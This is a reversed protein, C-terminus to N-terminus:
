NIKKYKSYFIGWSSIILTDNKISFEQSRDDYTLVNLTEKTEASVIRNVHFRTSLILSDNRYVNCISDAIFVLKSTSHASEPTSCGAFGGCSIIWSWNGVLSSSPNTSKKECGYCCIIILLTSLLKKM